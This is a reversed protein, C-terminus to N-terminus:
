QHAAHQARADPLSFLVQVEGTVTLTSTAEELQHVGEIAEAAGPVGFSVTYNGPLIRQVGRRDVMSLVTPSMALKVTTSAGAALMEVRVFDFLEGMLPADAHSPDTSNAKIFGLVVVASAVAGTNTVKVSYTAAPSPDQRAWSTRLDHPVDSTPNARSLQHRHYFRRDDSALDAAAVVQVREEHAANSV